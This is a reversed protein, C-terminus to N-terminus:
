LQIREKLLTIGGIALGGLLAAIIVPTSNDPGSFTRVVFPAAFGTAIMLVYIAGLGWSPCIRISVRFDERIQEGSEKQIRCFSLYTDAGFIVKKTKSRFDKRDYRTDFARITGNLPLLNEDDSSVKLAHEPFDNTPHFHYVRAEYKKGGDLTYLLDGEAVKPQILASTELDAIGEFRYFPTDEIANPTQYYLNILEEWDCLEYSAEIKDFPTGSCVLWYKGEIKGSKYEPVESNEFRLQSNFSVLDNIKCFDGLILVISVTSGHERVKSITAFRIPLVLPSINKTAQDLYCLVAQSNKDYTKWSVEDKVKDSVWKSAYRFQHMAGKPKAFLDVLDRSYGSRSNSSLLVDVSM